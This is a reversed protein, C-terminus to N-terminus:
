DLFGDKNRVVTPGVDKSWGDADRAKLGHWGTWSGDGEDPHTQKNHFIQGKGYPAAGDGVVFIELCGGADVGVAFTRRMSVEERLWEGGLSRWQSWMESYGPELQWCHHIDGDDALVFL